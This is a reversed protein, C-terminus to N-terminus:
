AGRIDLVASQLRATQRDRFYVVSREVTTQSDPSDYSGDGYTLCCFVDRGALREARLGFIMSLSVGTSLGSNVETQVRGINKLWQLIWDDIRLDTNRCVAEFLLDIVDIM